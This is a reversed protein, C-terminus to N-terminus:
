AARAVSRPLEMNTVAGSPAMVIALAAFHGDVRWSQLQRLNKVDFRPYSPSCGPVTEISQPSFGEGRQCAKYLSEKLAWIQEARHNTGRALWDLENPTLTWRLARSSEASDVLDVGLSVEAELSVVALVGRATHSVSIACPTTVRDVVLTPREGHGPNTSRSEIHLETAQRNALWHGESGAAELLLRKASIRGALWTDRREASRMAAHAAREEASLWITLASNGAPLESIRTYRIRMANM